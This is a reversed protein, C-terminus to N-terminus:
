EGCHVSMLLHFLLFFFVIIFGSVHMRVRIAFSVTFTGM